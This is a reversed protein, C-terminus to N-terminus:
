DQKKASKSSKITKLSIVTKSTTLRAVASLILWILKIMSDLYWDILWKMFLDFSFTNVHGVKWFALSVAILESNDCWSKEQEMRLVTLVRQAKATNLPFRSPRKVQSQYFLLSQSSEPPNFFSLFFAHGVPVGFYKANRALDLMLYRGRAPLYAPPKNGTAKMVGGLFFPRRSFWGRQTLLDFLKKTCSRRVSDIESELTEWLTASDSFRFIFLSEGIIRDNPHLSALHTQQGFRASYLIVSHTRFSSIYDIFCYRIFYVVDYFFEVEIKDM